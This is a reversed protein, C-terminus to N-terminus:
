CPCEDAILRWPLLKWWRVQLVMGCSKGLRVIRSVLGLVSVEGGDGPVMRLIQDGRAVLRLRMAGNLVRGLRELDGRIWRM